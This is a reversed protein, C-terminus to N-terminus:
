IGLMDANSMMGEYNEEESLAYETMEECWNHVAIARPTAVTLWRESDSKGHDFVLGDCSIHRLAKGIEEPSNPLDEVNLWLLGELIDTATTHMLWGAEAMLRIYPEIQQALVVAPRQSPKTEMVKAMGKIITWKAPTWLAPLSLRDDGIDSEPL